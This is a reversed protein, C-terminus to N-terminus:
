FLSLFTWRVPAQLVYGGNEEPTSRVVDYGEEWRRLFSSILEPPDQLDVDMPIVADGSAAHVGAAMAHEKGFNRSLNIIKVRRDKAHEARLVEPTADSSGDNIFIFEFRYPERDAIPRITELFLPISEEENYCPIILSVSQVFM